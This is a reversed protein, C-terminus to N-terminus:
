ILSAPCLPQAPHHQSTLAAADQCGDDQESQWLGPQLGARAACSCCSGHSPGSSLAAAKALVARFSARQCHRRSRRYRPLVAAASAAAATAAAGGIWSALGYDAGASALQVAAAQRRGRRSLSWSAAEPARWRAQAAVCPEVARGQTCYGLARGFGVCRNIIADVIVQIPNQDTLLHIIDFAHKVIRVQPQALPINSSRDVCNCGGAMRERM